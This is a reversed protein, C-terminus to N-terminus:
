TIIRSMLPNANQEISVAEFTYTIQKKAQLYFAEGESYYGHPASKLYDPL